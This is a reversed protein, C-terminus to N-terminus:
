IWDLVWVFCLGNSRVIVQLTISMFINCHQASLFCGAKPTVLRRVEEMEQGTPWLSEGRVWYRTGAAIPWCLSWDGYKMKAIMFNLSIEHNM